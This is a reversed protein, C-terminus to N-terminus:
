SEDTHTSDVPEVVIEIQNSKRNIAAKVQIMTAANSQKIGEVKDRIQTVFKDMVTPSIGGSKKHIALILDNVLRDTDRHQTEFFSELSTASKGKLNNNHISSGRIKQVMQLGHEKRQLSEFRNLIMDIYPDDTRRLQYYIGQVQREPHNFDKMWQLEDKTLVEGVNYMRELLVEYRKIYQEFLDALERNKGKLM